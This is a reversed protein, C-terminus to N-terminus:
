KTDYTAPGPFNKSNPDKPKGLNSLFPSVYKKKSNKEPVEVQYDGVGM